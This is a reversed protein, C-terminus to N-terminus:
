NEFFYAMQSSSYYPSVFLSSDTQLTANHLETFFCHPGYVDVLTRWLEFQQQKTARGRAQVRRVEEWVRAAQKFLSPQRRSIFKPTIGDVVVVLSIDQRKLQSIISVLSLQLSLDM